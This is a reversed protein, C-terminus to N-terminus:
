ALHFCLNVERQVMLIIFEILKWATTILTWSMTYFVVEIVHVCCLGLLRGRTQWSALQQTLEERTAAGPRAEGVEM